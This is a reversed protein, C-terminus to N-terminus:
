NSLIDDVTPFACEIGCYLYKEPDLIKERDDYTAWKTEKAAEIIDALFCLFSDASKLEKLFRECEKAKKDCVKIAEIKDSVTNDFRLILEEQKSIEELESETKSIEEDVKGLVCSIVGLNLAKIKEYPVYGSFADFLWNARSYSSIPM